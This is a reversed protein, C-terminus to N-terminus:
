GNKLFTELIGRQVEIRCKFVQQLLKLVYLISIHMLTRRHPVLSGQVRKQPGGDYGCLM